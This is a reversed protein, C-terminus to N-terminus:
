RPSNLLTKKHNRRWVFIGECILVSGVLALLHWIPSSEGGLAILAYPGGIVAVSSCFLITFVMGFSAAILWWKDSVVARRVLSAFYCSLFFGFTVSLTPLVIGCREASLLRALDSIDRPAQYGDLYTLRIVLQEALTANIMWCVFLIILICFRFLM